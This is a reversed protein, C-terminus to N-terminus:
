LSVELMEEKFDVRDQEQSELLEQQQGQGSQDEQTDESIQFEPGLQLDARAGAASTKWAM